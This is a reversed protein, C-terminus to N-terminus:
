EPRVSRASGTDGSSAGTSAQARPFISARKDNVLKVLQDSEAHKSRLGHAWVGCVTDVLAYKDEVVTFDGQFVHISEEMWKPKDSLPELDDKDGTYLFMEAFGGVAIRAWQELRCWGRREYTDANCAMKSTYHTVSPAIVVFYKCVSAYVGLSSISLKKLTPNRQPISLYSCLVPLCACSLTLRWEDGDVLSAQLTATIPKVRRAVVCEIWVYVQDEDLDQTSVLLAAAKVIADFHKGEPDPESTSLWQSCV